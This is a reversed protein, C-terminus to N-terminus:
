RYLWVYDVGAPVGYLDARDPPTGFRIEEETPNIADGPRWFNLQLTKRVFQRGKGLNDGKQYVGEPDVWKYANSLGQVYVSFFDLRPDVDVWTAVGWVGDAERDTSVPIPTKAIQVSNLLKRNPDERMQIAATAVPIVRDLYAKKYEHSELVFQPLFRIPKAVKETAYTAYTEEGLKTTEKAVPKLAAGVNRVRYVMYWILKRQMKGSPQPVDVYIMRLPKFSFELGEVARRFKVDNAMGYLTRSESYFNPTWKLEDLARLEVIDHTSVTESEEVNPPITTMVGPALQRFGGDDVAQATAPRAALAALLVLASPALRRGLLSIAPM